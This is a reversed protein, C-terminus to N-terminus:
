SPNDTPRSRQILSKWHGWHPFFMPVRQKYELYSEGFEAVVLKEERRALLTYMVVILPFAVVSFVTPWHVIGEGFLAIFLGSYQPHRVLAYLGDTVLRQQQRARHLERWGQIVLGIGLFLLGYGFVMAVFMGTEGMGVLSSWLNANLHSQDLGFYRVLLYITMPFGYMEAYLAIIFAQVLGAGAWERWTSPALYRYFMWSAIVIMFVAAIWIGSHAIPTGM